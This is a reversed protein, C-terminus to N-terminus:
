TYSVTRKGDPKKEGVYKPYQYFVTAPRGKFISKLIIVEKATPKHVSGPIKRKKKDKKANVTTGSSKIILM